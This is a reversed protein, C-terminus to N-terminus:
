RINVEVERPLKPNEKEAKKDSVIKADVEKDKEVEIGTPASIPPDM